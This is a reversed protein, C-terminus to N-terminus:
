KSFLSGYRGNRTKPEITLVRKMTVNQSEEDNAAFDLKNQKAYSLLIDDLKNTLEDKTLEFYNERKALECYEVTERIQAYDASQLVEIKEPEAEYQALKASMEEYNSRMANLATLESDTLYEVNMHVREGDFSVNDGDKTYSQKFKNDNNFMGEYIFSDDYVSSIYYWENDEEEYSGLLAYLACRIDEHSIEFHKSYKEEEESPTVDEPEQQNDEVDTVEGTSEEAETEQVVEESAVEDEFTEEEPADIVTANEDFDM